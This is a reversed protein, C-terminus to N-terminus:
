DDYQIQPGLSLPAGIGKRNLVTSITSFGRYGTMQPVATASGAQVLAKVMDASLMHSRGWWITLDGISPCIMVFTVIQMSHYM